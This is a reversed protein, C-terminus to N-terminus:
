EFDIPIFNKFIGITTLTNKKDIKTQFLTFVVYNNVTTSNRVQGEGFWSLLGKEIIGESQEMAQEQVWAVYEEKTPNTVAMLIALLLVVIITRLSIGGLIVLNINIKIKEYFVYSQM